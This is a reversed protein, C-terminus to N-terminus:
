STPEEDAYEFILRPDIALLHEHGPVDHMRGMAAGCYRGVLPPQGEIRLETRLGELSPTRGMQMFAARAETFEAEPKPAEDAMRRLEAADAHMVTHATRGPAWTADAQAAVRDASVSPVAAPAAARSADYAALLEEAEDWPMGHAEPVPHWDPSSLASLVAIRPDTM